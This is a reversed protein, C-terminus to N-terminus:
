QMMQNDGGIKVLSFTTFFRYRVESVAQLNAARILLDGMQRMMMTLLSM